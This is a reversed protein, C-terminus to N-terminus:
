APRRAAGRGGGALQRHRPRRSRRPPPPPPLEAGRLVEGGVGLWCRGGIKSLGMIAGPPGRDAPTPSPRGARTRVAAAAGSSAGRRPRGWRRGRAASVIRPPLAARRCAQRLRQVGADRGRRRRRRPRGAGRRRPSASARGGASGPRGVAAAHASADGDSSTRGRTRRATPPSVITGAPGVCVRAAGRRCGPRGLRRAARSSRSRAAARGAGLHRDLVQAEGERGHQGGVAIRSAAASPMSAAVPQRPPGGRRCGGGDDRHEGGLSGSGAWLPWGVVADVGSLCRADADRARSAPPMSRRARASRGPGAPGRGSPREARPPAKAVTMGIPGTGRALRRRWAAVRRLGGASSSRPRFRVVFPRQHRAKPRSVRLAM